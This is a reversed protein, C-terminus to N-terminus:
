SLGYRQPPRIERGYRTVYGAPRQRNLPTAPTVRLTSPESSANGEESQGTANPTAPFDYSPDHGITREEGYRVLTRRNRELEAGDDTRVRYSRPRLASSLVTAPKKCDKIWVRNGPALPPLRTAAHHRDYDLRQKNRVAEDRHQLSRFGLAKSPVLKKPHLPLTSRLRRGMLLQAPSTGLPGPSDRYALLALYPDVSKELLRKVTQVTREAAGNSQPYRPSSTVHHFGYSAAFAAFEASVFQPGNDTVVIEPIGHRAFISKMQVIVASSSTSSLLALEPYRSFYDVVVLYDRGRLHFLDAGLKLWPLRPSESPMMPEAKQVRLMACDRCSNVLAGLEASLGPWWVSERARARCKVIGQHGEHLSRLVESRLSQPVVLRSGHLLVGDCITLNARQSWYPSLWSSVKACRPWGARCYWRLQQCTADKEQALKMKDWHASFKLEGICGEVHSSVESCGLEGKALGAERCPARSLADATGIQKGPVYSVSFCFRMLRLRFRQIRPPLVDIPSQGLLSVLPKHDTEFQFELGILFCELREAAWTLALAEKEIQAYRQETPTLSRSHYAVPRREGNPQVQMLVCGLGVSSADASVITRLKPDFKAVCQASTILAKLAEFARQQPPGWHWERDKLLLSRLPASVDALNSVFRALYNIMGLFRRVDAVSKPTAMENIAHVKKPDPRIGSSDVVYGLFAVRTVCFSCKARNLTVGAKVLRKLVAHLREDHEHKTAGYVLIDDMLNVVGPLGELIEAMQKQFYEPASSIGFPLRQFCYRGFPTIFTTLEQSEKALKVQHFGSNADLKSFYIAGALQGLADDITPLVFQERLVSKNLQTLDVCIRVEGSPKVVPVIGACWKTPGDVKRIVESEVMKDLELKIPDKLPIPIRRPTFIAFPVAGEKMRITYEGPMTGLGRFLQPYMYEYQKDDVADVFKIVGLAEIAPLGLLVCQLSEVVYVTQRATKGKWVIDACFSGKVDLREDAASRLVAQSKDIRPPVGPFDPPVVTVEAGSDIKACVRVNNICVEAYRANCSGLTGLFFNQGEGELVSVGVQNNEKSKQCVM